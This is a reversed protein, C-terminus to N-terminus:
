EIRISCSIIKFTFGKRNTNLQILFQLMLNTNCNKLNLFAHNRAGLNFSLVRDLAWGSDAHTVLM